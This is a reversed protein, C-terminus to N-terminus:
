FANWPHDRGIGKRGLLYIVLSILSVSFLLVSSYWEPINAEGNLNFRNAITWSRSAPFFHMGLLIFVILLLFLFLNRLSKNM